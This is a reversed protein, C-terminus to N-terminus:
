ERRNPIKNVSEFETRARSTISIRQPLALSIGTAITGKSSV